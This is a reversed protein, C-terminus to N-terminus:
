TVVVKCMYGERSLRSYVEEQRNEDACLVIVGYQEKYRGEGPDLNTTVIDDAADEFLAIQEDDTWLGDLLAANEDALQALLVPDFDLNVQAIRNAELGLRVARPDSASPIDTRKVVVPRTGDTEVIIAQETGLTTELTELRASGDFTEGDAAVTIAGIWGHEQIASELLRMGRQTHRNANQQQPRLDSM